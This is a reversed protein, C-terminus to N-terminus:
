NEFVLEKYCDEFFEDSTTKIEMLGVNEGSVMFLNLEKQSPNINEVKLVLFVDKQHIFKGSNTITPMDNIYVYLKGEKFTETGSIKM